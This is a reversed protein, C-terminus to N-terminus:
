ADTVEIGLDAAITIVTDADGFVVIENDAALRLAAELAPEDGHLAAQQARGISVFLDLAHATRTEHRERLREGLSTLRQFRRQPDPM